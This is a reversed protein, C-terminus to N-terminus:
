AARSEEEIAIDRMIQFIRESELRKAEFGTDKGVHGLIDEAHRSQGVFGMSWHPFGRAAVKEFALVQVDSHRVDRQIREFTTEIEALSGELVQAFIGTNFILAGTLGVRANNAQASALIAAISDAIEERSGRVRNVSYYVLRHLNNTM